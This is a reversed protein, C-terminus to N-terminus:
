FLCTNAELFDIGWILSVLLLLVKGDNGDSTGVIKTEM